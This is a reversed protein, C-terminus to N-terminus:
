ELNPTGRNKTEASLPFCRRLTSVQLVQGFPKAELCIHNAYGGLDKVAGGPQKDHTETVSELEVTIM